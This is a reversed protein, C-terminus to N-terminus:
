QGGEKRLYKATEECIEAIWLRPDCDRGGLRMAWDNMGAIPELCKGFHVFHFLYIGYRPLRPDGAMAAGYACRRSFRGMQDYGLGHHPGGDISSGVFSRIGLAVDELFDAKLADTVMPNIDADFTTDLLGENWHKESM